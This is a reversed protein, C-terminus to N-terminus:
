GPAVAPEPAFSESTGSGTPAPAVCWRRLWASTRSEPLSRTEFCACLTSSLADASSPPRLHFIRDTRGDQARSKETSCNEKGGAAGEAGATQM